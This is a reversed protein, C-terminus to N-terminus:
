LSCVFGGAELRLTLNCAFAYFYAGLAYIIRQMIDADVGVSRRFSRHIVGRCMLWKERPM